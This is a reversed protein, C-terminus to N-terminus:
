ERRRWVNPDRRVHVCGVVSITDSFLRYYLRYPFGPVTVRRLTSSVLPFREPSAAMAEVAADIAALLRSAVTPSRASYWALAEAVESDAISRFRVRM